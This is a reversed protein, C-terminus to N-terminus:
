PNWYIAIATVMIIANLYMVVYFLLNPFYIKLPFFMLRYTDPGKDKSFTAIRRVRQNGRKDILIMEMHATQNDGDDRADVKEMIARAQPDEAWALPAMIIFFAVGTVFVSITKILKNNMM